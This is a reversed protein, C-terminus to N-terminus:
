LAFLIIYGFILVAYLAYLGTLQAQKKETMLFTVYHPITLFLDSHGVNYDDIKIAQKVHCKDYNKLITKARKVNGNGAKVEVLTCEGKYRIVFDIELGSDKYFYYFFLGTDKM